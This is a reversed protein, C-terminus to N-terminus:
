GNLSKVKEESLLLKQLELRGEENQSIRLGSINLSKGGSENPVINSEFLFSLLRKRFPRLDGLQELRTSAQLRDPEHGLFEAIKEILEHLNDFGIRLLSIGCIEKDYTFKNRSQEESNDPFLILVKKGPKIQLFAHDAIGSFHQDLVRYNRILAGDVEWYKSLLDKIADPIEYKDLKKITDNISSPLSVGLSKSILKILTDQMIRLTSLLPSIENQIEIMSRSNFVIKDEIGELQDEFLEFERVCNIQAQEIRLISVTASTARSLMFTIDDAMGDASMWNSTREFFGRSNLLDALYM